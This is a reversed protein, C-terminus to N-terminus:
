GIREISLHALRTNVSPTGSIATNQVTVSLYHGARCYWVAAGNEELPGPPDTWSVVQGKRILGSAPYGGATGASAVVAVLVSATGTTVPTGPHEAAIYATIAYRGDVPILIRGPNATGWFASGDNWVVDATGWTVTGIAGSLVTLTGGQRLGLGRRQEIYTARGFRDITTGDKVSPVVGTPRILADDVVEKAVARVQRWFDTADSM